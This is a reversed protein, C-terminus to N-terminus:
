LDNHVDIHESNAQKSSMCQLNRNIPNTADNFFLLAVGVELKLIRTISPFVFNIKFPRLGVLIQRPHTLMSNFRGTMYSRKCCKYMLNSVFMYLTCTNAFVMQVIAFLLIHKYNVYVTFAHKTIM